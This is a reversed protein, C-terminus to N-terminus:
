SVLPKDDGEHYSSVLQFYISIMQIYYLIILISNGGDFYKNMHHIFKPLGPFVAIVSGGHEMRAISNHTASHKIAKKASRNGPIPKDTDM